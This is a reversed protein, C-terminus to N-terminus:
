QVLPKLALAAIALAALVGTTRRGRPSAMWTGLGTGVTALSIQWSASAVFAAAVFM